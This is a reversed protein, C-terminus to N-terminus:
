IIKMSFLKALQYQLILLPLTASKYAIDIGLKTEPMACYCPSDGRIHCEFSGKIVYLHIVCNGTHDIACCPSATNSLESSMSFM